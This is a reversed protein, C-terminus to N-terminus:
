QALLSYRVPCSRLEAMMGILCIWIVFGFVGFNIFVNVLGNDYENTTADEPLYAQLFDPLEAQPVGLPAHLFIASVCKM